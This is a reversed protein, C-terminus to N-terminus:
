EAKAAPHLGYFSAGLFALADAADKVPHLPICSRPRRIASDVMSLIAATRHIM